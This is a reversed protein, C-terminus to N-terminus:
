MVNVGRGIVVVVIALAILSQIMTTFKAARGIVATDTPSLATSTNFALFLYDIIGPTWNAQEMAKREESTMLLQPFLFSVHGCDPAERIHPGGGDFRWYWITFAIVNILWLCAGSQLVEHKMTSPQEPLRIILTLVSSALFFCHLVVLAYGVSQNQKIRKTLYLGVAILEIVTVVAFPVIPDVLRFEPRVGFYFVTAVLNLILALWLDNRPHFLREGFGYIGKNHSRSM